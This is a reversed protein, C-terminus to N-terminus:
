KAWRLLAYGAAASIFSGIMIGIKAYELHAAESFSLNSIFLSMTFGIGGLLGAGLIQTWTTGQVLETKLIRAIGFTFLFIGLPKGLVLGATIGITIPDTLAVMPELGTFAVGANALAFFPLVLYGVWSSLGHELQQLPPEVEKCALNIEQVASLHSRNVMISQGCTGDLCQIKALRKSVMELFLDTDYKGTAPIFMATIVGAVTPHLGAKAVAFWLLICLLIYALWHRVGFYNLGWLGCTIAVAFLLATLNLAPTYFLAIVVIAGLDDAIAFATLFLRLGFPIRSGLTALVALSFAIDTAMPIGWGSMGAGGLNFFLYILAPFAMGGVAAAVPLAARRPDSLGGVLFERKIELGVTLFFITMLGDNIWHVLSHSLTYGALSLSLEQHWFHYYGEANVNSWIFAIVASGFLLFGAQSIKAFFHQFASTQMIKSVVQIPSKLDLLISNNPKEPEM